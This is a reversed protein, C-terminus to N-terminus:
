ILAGPISQLISDEGQTEAGHTRNHSHINGCQCIPGVKPLSQSRREEEAMIDNFTDRRLMPLNGLDPVQGAREAAGRVSNVTDPLVDEVEARLQALNHSPSTPLSQPHPKESSSRLVAQHEAM